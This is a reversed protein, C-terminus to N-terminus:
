EIVLFVQSRDICFEEPQPSTETLRLYWAPYDTIRMPLLRYLRFNEAGIKKKGVQLETCALKVNHLGQADAQVVVQFSVTENAAAFLDIAGSNSNILLDDQRRPTHATLKEM